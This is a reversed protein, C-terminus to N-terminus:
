KKKRMREVRIQHAWIYRKTTGNDLLVQVVLRACETCDSVRCTCLFACLFASRVTFACGTPTCPMYSLVEYM